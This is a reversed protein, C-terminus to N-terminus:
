RVAVPAERRLNLLCAGLAFLTFLIFTCQLFGFADFTLMAVAFATLSAALAVALWGDASDDERAVRALRRISRRFLWFIGVAGVIGTELLSYLWENDLIRANRKIGLLEATITAVRTGYGEGFVPGKDVLEQLSPKIRALRGDAVLGNGKVTQSQEAILGHKPFFAGYFTGISHPLAVYVLVLAPVLIPYVRKTDVPRLWRFVVFAAILMIIGTRSVTALAGITLLLLSVLWRRRGTSKFLYIALPVLM